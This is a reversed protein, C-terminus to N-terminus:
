KKSKPMTPFNPKLHFTGFLVWTAAVYWSLNPWGAACNYKALQCERPQRVYHWQKPIHQM